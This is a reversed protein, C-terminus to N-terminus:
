NVLLFLQDAPVVMLCLCLTYSFYKPSIFWEIAKTIPERPTKPLDEFSIYNADPVFPRPHERLLMKM